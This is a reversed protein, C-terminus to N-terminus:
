KDWECIACMAKECSVDAWKYNYGDYYHLCSEATNAGIQACDPQPPSSETYWSTYTLPISTTSDKKWVFEQSCDGPTVRQGSTYYGKGNGFQCAQADAERKFVFRILHEVIMMNEEESNVIVAHSGPYLQRCREQSQDWTLSEPIVQYCNNV